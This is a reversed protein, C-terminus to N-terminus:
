FNTSLYTQTETEENKSHHYSGIEWLVKLILHSLTHESSILINLMDCLSWLYIDKMGYCAQALQSVDQSQYKGESTICQWM